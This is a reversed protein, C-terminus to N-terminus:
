GPTWPATSGCRDMEFETTFRQLASSIQPTAGQSFLDIGPLVNARSVGAATRLGQHISCHKSILFGGSPTAKKNGVRLQPASAVQTSGGEHSSNLLKAPLGQANFQQAATDALELCDTRFYYVTDIPANRGRRSRRMQSQGTICLRKMVSRTLPAINILICVCSM